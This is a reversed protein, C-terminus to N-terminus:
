KAATGHGDDQVPKTCDEAVIEGQVAAQSDHTTEAAILAPQLQAKLQKALERAKDLEAQPIRHEVVSTSQKSFRVDRDLISDAAKIAAPINESAHTLAYEYTRIALPILERLQTQMEASDTSLQRDLISSRQDLRAQRWEKYYPDELTRQIKIISRKTLRAIQPMDLGALELRVVKHWLILNKQKWRYPTIAV